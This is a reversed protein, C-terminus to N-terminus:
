PSDDELAPQAAGSACKEELARSMWLTANVQHYDQNLFTLLDAMYDKVAYTQWVTKDIKVEIITANQQQLDPILEPMAVQAVWPHM